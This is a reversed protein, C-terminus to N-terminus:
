ILAIVKEQKAGEKSGFMNKPQAPESFPLPRVQALCVQLRNFRPLTPVVSPLGTREELAIMDEHLEALLPPPRLRGREVRLADINM